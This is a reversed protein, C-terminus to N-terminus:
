SACYVVGGSPREVLSEAAEEAVADALRALVRGDHDAEGVIEFDFDIGVGVNPLILNEAVHREAWVLVARRVQAVAAARDPAIVIVASQYFGNLVKSQLTWLRM